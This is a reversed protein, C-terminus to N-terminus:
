WRDRQQRSLETVSRINTSHVLGLKETGCRHGGRAICLTDIERLILSGHRFTLLTLNSQCRCYDQLTKRIKRALKLRRRDSRFSQWSRLSEDPLEKDVQELQQELDTLEAQLYLVSRAHLTTFKRFITLGNEKGILAALQPYGPRVDAFRRLPAM